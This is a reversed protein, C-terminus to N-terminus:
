VGPIIGHGRPFMGQISVPLKGKPKIKGLLVDILAEQMPEHYDYTVLHNKVEPFALIDYPTGLSIVILCKDKKDVLENLKRVLKVEEPYRLAEWTCIIIFDAKLVHKTSGELVEEAIEEEFFIEEVDVGKSAMKEGITSSSEGTETLKKIRKPCVVLAKSLGERVMPLCRGNLKVLTISEECIRKELDFFKEFNPREKKAMSTRKKLNMIRLLSEAIREKSLDGRKVAKIVFDIAAMQEEFDRCILAMDEGAKIALLCAEALSYSKSVAGMLLDDSLVAGRFGLEGRLTGEIVKRSLTAPMEPDIGPVVVHSPMIAEVGEDIAEIFPLFEREWLVDLPIDLVPLDVHPDISAAGIGPFHKAVAIVGSKRLGAIMARGMKSVYIPDDGFSRVGISPNTKDLIIDLVPALNVNIGFWRLQEGIAKGVSYAKKLSYTAGLAMNGPFVAFGKRIRAVLGGEQDISILLPTGTLRISLENAESILERLQEGSDVNRSFIIIGGPKLEELLEKLGEEMKKGNFGLMFLQSVRDKLSM